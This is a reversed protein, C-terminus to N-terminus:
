WFHMISDPDYETDQVEEQMVRFYDVELNTDQMRPDSRMKEVDLHKSAVKWFCPRQHEHQLGLVHGFEHTVISKMFHLGLRSLPGIRMTPESKPVSLADTGTKSWCGGHATLTYVNTLVNEIVITM